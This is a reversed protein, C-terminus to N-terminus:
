RDFGPRDPIKALVMLIDETVKVEGNEIRVDVGDSKPIWIEKKM